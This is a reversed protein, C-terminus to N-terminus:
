SFSTRNVECSERECGGGKAAVGKVSQLSDYIKAAAFFSNSPLFLLRAVSIEITTKTGCGIL